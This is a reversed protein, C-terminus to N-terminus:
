IPRKHLRAPVRGCEHSEAHTTGQRPLGSNLRAAHRRMAKEWIGLKKVPADESEVPFLALWDALRSEIVRPWSLDRTPGTGFGLTGEGDGDIDISMVGTTM